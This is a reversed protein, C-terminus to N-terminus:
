DIVELDALYGWLGKAISAPLVKKVFSDMCIVMM